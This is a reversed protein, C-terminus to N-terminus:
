WDMLVAGSTLGAGFGALLVKMGPELLGDKIAGDLALPVSAASTNGYKQLNMYFRELPVNLHSAASKLIRYNAQHCIFIDIDDPAIKADDCVKRINNTLVNVAFKYVAPGNMHMYRDMYLADTGGRVESTWKFMGDTPGVVAAAAADGFLVCTSRDTFDTIKSLVEAGVIIGYPREKLLPTDGMGLIGQAAILTYLFGSCAASLDFAIVDNSLGLDRQLLCAIAPFGHAGTFTAVICFGIDNADKGSAALAEKAAALALAETTEGAEIDAIRREHIGTHSIIWEDSTDVMGALEDNTLIRKPVANGTALIRM